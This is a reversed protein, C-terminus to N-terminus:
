AVRLVIGKRRVISRLAEVADSSVFGRKPLWHALLPATFLLVGLKDEHGKIIKDWGIVTREADVHCDLEEDSIMWTFEKGELQIKKWVLSSIWRKVLSPLFSLLAALMFPPIVSSLSFRGSAVLVICMLMIVAGIWTLGRGGISMSRALAAGANELEERSFRFQVRIPNM